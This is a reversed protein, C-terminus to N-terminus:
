HVISVLRRNALHEVAIDRTLLRRHECLERESGREHEHLLEVTDSDTFVDVVRTAVVVVVRSM